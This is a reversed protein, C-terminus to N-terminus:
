ANTTRESHRRRMHRPLSYRALEDGCVECTAREAHRLRRCERCARENLGPQRYTNEDTLEHDRVCRTKAANAHTGHRVSDLMNDSQTGYALNSLVNNAEDGDLHRVLRGHDPGVFAQMMVRHVQVTKKSGGLHLTIYRYGHRDLYPKLVRGGRRVRGDDSVEYRPADPIPKWRTNM